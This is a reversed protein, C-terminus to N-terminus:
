RPPTAKMIWWGRVHEAGAYYLIPQGNAPDITIQPAIMEDVEWPSGENILMPTEQEEYPGFPHDACAIMIAEVDDVEGTRVAVFQGNPLRTLQGEMGIPVPVERVEGWSRGQDRSIAGMVWVETVDDFGDWALFTMHLVGEHEVVSPSTILHVDRGALMGRPVVPTPNLTYPGDVAPATAMYVSADYEDEDNYGIFYLQHQGNSARHYFATEKSIPSTHGQSAGILVRPQQWAAWDNAYVMKIAIYGQDDGSYVMRRVGDEGVFVHPDGAAEYPENPIKERYVPGEHRVWELGLLGCSFAPAAPVLTLILGIAFARKFM